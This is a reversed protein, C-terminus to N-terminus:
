FRAHLECFAEFSYNRDNDDKMYEKEMRVTDRQKLRDRIDQTADGEWEWKGDVCEIALCALFEPVDDGTRKLWDEVQECVAELSSFSEPHWEEFKGKTISRLLFETM